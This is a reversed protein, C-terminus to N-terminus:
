HVREPLEVFSILLKDKLLWSLLHRHRWIVAADLHLHLSIEWYLRRILLLLKLWCHTRPELSRLFIIIQSLLFFLLDNLNTLLLLLKFFIKMLFHKLFFLITLLPLLFTERRNLIPLFFPLTLDLKASLVILFEFVLELSLLWISSLAIRPFSYNVIAIQAKSSNTLLTM